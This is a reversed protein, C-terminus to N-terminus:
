GMGSGNSRGKRSLTSAGILSLSGSLFPIGCWGWWMQEWLAEMVKTKEYATRAYGECSPDYLQRAVIFALAGVNRNSLVLLVNALLCDRCLSHSCKM